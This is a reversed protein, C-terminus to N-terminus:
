KWARLVKQRNMRRDSCSPCHVDGTALSFEDLAVSCDSCYGGSKRKAKKGKYNNDACKQCKKRNPRAPERHCSQCIGLKELKYRYKKLNEPKV